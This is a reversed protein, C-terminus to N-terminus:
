AGSDSGPHSQNEPGSEHNIRISVEVNNNKIILKQNCTDSRMIMEEIRGLLGLLNSRLNPTLTIKEM